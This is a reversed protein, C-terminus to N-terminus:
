LIEQLFRRFFKQFFLSQFQRFFELPVEIWGFLLGDTSDVPLIEYSIESSIVFLIRPPICFPIKLYNGFFDLISNKSYKSSSIEPLIIPSIEFTITKLPMGCNKSSDRDPPLGYNKSRWSSTWFSNRFSNMFCDLFFRKSSYWYSSM